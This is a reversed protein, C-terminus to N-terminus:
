LLLKLHKQDFVVFPANILVLFKKFYMNIYKKYWKYKEM